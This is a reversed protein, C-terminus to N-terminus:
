KLWMVDCPYVNIRAACLEPTELEVGFAHLMANINLNNVNDLAPFTGPGLGLTLSKFIFSAYDRNEM